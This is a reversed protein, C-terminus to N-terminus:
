VIADWLRADVFLSLHKTNTTAVVVQHGANQLLIAQAALIVDGDLAEDSASPKGLKRAEAWLDAALIMTATTLPLYGLEIKFQDLKVIGRKKDARRLERRVEYDALESVLVKKGQRLQTRIWQNCRFTKELGKPNTALGLPGSDLLIFDSM